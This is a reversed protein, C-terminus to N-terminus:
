AARTRRVLEAVARPADDPAPRTVRIERHEVGALRPVPHATARSLETIIPSQM